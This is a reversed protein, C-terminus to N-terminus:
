HISRVYHDYRAISLICIIGSSPSLLSLTNCGMIEYKCIQEGGRLSPGEETAVGNGGDHVGGGEAGFM